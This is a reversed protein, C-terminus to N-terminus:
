PILTSSQMAVVPLQKWCIRYSGVAYEPPNFCDDLEVAPTADPPSNQSSIEPTSPSEFSHCRAAEGTVCHSLRLATRLPLMAACSEPTPEMWPTSPTELSMHNHAVGCRQLVAEPCHM